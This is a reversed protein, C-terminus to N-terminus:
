ETSGVRWGQEGVSLRGSLARRLATVGAGLDVMDANDKPYSTVVVQAALIELPLWLCM